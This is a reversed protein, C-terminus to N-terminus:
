FRRLAVTLIDNIIQDIEEFSLKPTLDNRIEYLLQDIDAKIRNHVDVNDHWDVKSHMQIIEEIEISKEAIIEEKSKDKKNYMSGGLSENMVGFFAQANNNKKILEPYSIGSYGKRYDSLIKEMNQLYESETIRKNKYEEIIEEIRKSFNEYYAPNSEYKTNISQTLRTRIADAKSRNSGLRKLEEEFDGENLIDVPQSIVIVEEAAIYMDMLNRMKAEYEKHDLADSYRIKVTARLEQYFKLDRKYKNLEDKKLADYVHVSEMSLTLYKGFESLQKYFNDRIADDELLLEYEERDDKNRVERFIEVVRSYSQRLSGLISIVDVLAGNIDEQDFDDLGAGSYMELADGLPEILGRYDIILGFDKGEYLRNIRAIAQLLSHEKLPKDIYLVSARPADFGTLLKDVVILMDIEEGEVFENKMADEYAEQDQYDSMQQQWFKLVRDKPDADVEDNGERTDPPSIIVATNFNDYDDFAEKYRVADFKSNTALMAKFGTNKYFKNFHVYIDDAILKIRQESSAIMEFSSWKKKLLETEKENLNRTIAKLRNDLATRNVSQEVLRGEYLLPVITKDNVGDKITYKHILRGFKRMTSKEKKMLPTGTFGLYCANPFVQKMKTHLEGYQTRHSEDVLVFINKDSISIHANSAADFKHVLTTIISARNDELLEILNRGTSARSARLRSHNFTKHIQSDLEIRDTVIVIKPDLSALESMIYKSLMVMTLSKGSGQTHWIVGSERNGYKDVPEITKIIEKIAFYQQYRAIKKTNRDFVIFHKILDIVRKPHFISILNQDQITPTRDNVINRLEENFWKYEDSNNDERWLQWYRLPAGVTGYKVENKNSAMVIQVFKFLQPVYNTGQNRIMQSIGQNLEISSNKFEIVGFPVGNIFLVLDPRVSGRGDEREVSFEEVAHFVNNEPTNWDIYNLNFSRTGDALSVVESYSRGLLLSNYIKENTKILGDSLPEDIDRIAQEINSESFKRTEGRFEFENITRLQKRLVDSLVVNYRSGRLEDAKTPNIIIYGMKNLLELAPKQSINFENSKIYM